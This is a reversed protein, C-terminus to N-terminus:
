ENKGIDSLEIDYSCDSFAITQKFVSLIIQRAKDSSDREEWTDATNWKASVSLSNSAELNSNSSGNNSGNISNRNSSSNSETNSANNSTINNTNIMKPSIDGVLLKDEESLVRHFYPMKKSRPQDNNSDNNSTNSNIDDNIAHNNDNNTSDIHENNSNSSNDIKDM